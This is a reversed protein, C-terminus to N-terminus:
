GCISLLSHKSNVMVSICVKNKNKYSSDITDFTSPTSKFTTATAITIHHESFSFSPFHISYRFTLRGALFFGDDQSKLNDSSSGMWRHRSLPRLATVVNRKYRTGCNIDQEIRPLIGSSANLIAQTDNLPFRVTPKRNRRLLLSRICLLAM